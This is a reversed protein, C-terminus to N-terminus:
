INDGNRPSIRKEIDAVFQQPEDCSVVVKKGDKLEILVLDVARRAYVVFKGIKKSYMHGTYGFMGGNGMTRTSRQLLYSPGNADLWEVRAIEALPIHRGGTLWRIGVGDGDVILYKPSYCIAYALVGLMIVVILVILLWQESMCVLVIAAVLLATAFYSMLRHVVDGSM